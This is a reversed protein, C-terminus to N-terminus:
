PTIFAGVGPNSGPFGQPFLSLPVKKSFLELSVSGKPSIQATGPQAV